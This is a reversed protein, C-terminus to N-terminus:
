LNDILRKIVDLLSGNLKKHRFEKQSLTEDM